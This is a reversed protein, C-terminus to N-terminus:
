ERRNGWEIFREEFSSFPIKVSEWVGDKNNMPIHAEIEEKNLIALKNCGNFVHWFYFVYAPATKSIEWEHSTIHCHANNMSDKSAKVEIFLPMRSSNSEISLIDYGVLNSDISMWRPKNGTREEEYQITLREGTRGTAMNSDATRKRITEAISDWWLIEDDDPCENLLSAEYFCAKEDKTMFIAAENRGYPIRKSWAPEAILVYKELIKRYANGYNHRMTEEVIYIGPSTVLWEVQNLLELLECKQLIETLDDVDIDGIRYLSHIDDVSVAIGEKIYKLLKISSAIVNVSLRIM